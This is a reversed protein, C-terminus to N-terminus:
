HGWNLEKYIVFLKREYLFSKKIYSSSNEKHFFLYSFSIVKDFISNTLRFKFNYIFKNQFFTVLLLYVNKLIVILLFFLTFNFLFNEEGFKNNLFILYKSKNDDPNLVNELIPLILSLNFVELLSFISLLFIFLYFFKREKSSLLKLM